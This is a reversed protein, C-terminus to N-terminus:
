LKEVAVVVRSNVRKQFDTVVIYAVSKVVAVAVVQRSLIVM